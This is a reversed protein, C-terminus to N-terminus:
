PFMSVGNQKIVQPNAELDIQFTDHDIGTHKEIYQDVTFTLTMPRPSNDHSSQGPSRSQLRGVVTYTVTEKVGGANDILDEEVDFEYSEGINSLQNYNSTLMVTCTMDQLRGLVRENAYGGTPVTILERVIDPPTFGQTDPTLDTDDPVDTGGGADLSINWFSRYKKVTM